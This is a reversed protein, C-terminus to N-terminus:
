YDNKSEHLGLLYGEVHGGAYGIKYGLTLLAGASGFAILLIATTTM